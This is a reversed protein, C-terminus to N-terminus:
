NRTPVEIAIPVPDAKAAALFRDVPELTFGLDNTLFHMPVVTKPAVRKTIEWATKGDVTYVSGVPIMLVDCGRIAAVTADDPIHGLDGCHVFRQGDAEIIFITNAGRKAGHAEDHFTPIGTVTFGAITEKALSERIIPSGGIRETACHDHHRHSVTIIDASVRPLKPLSREDAPDTVLRGGADNTILFTSHGLWTWKVAYEETGM